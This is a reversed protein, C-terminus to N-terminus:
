VTLCTVPASGAAPRAAAAPLQCSIGATLLSLQSLPSSQEVDGEDEDHQHHLRQNLLKINPKVDVLSQRQPGSTHYACNITLGYSLVLMAPPCFLTDIM